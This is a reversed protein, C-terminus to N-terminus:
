DEMQNLRVVFDESDSLNDWLVSVFNTLIILDHKRGALDMVHDRLEAEKKFGIRELMAIEHVQERMVNAAIKDLNLQLALSFLETLLLTGLGQKRHASAVSLRIEGIHRHWGHPWLYLTGDGVIRDGAEAVIALARAPDMQGIWKDIVAPETVDERMSVRDDAPLGRFFELIKDRDDATFPRLVVHLGNRLTAVKLFRTTVMESTM